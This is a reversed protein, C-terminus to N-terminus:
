KLLEDAPAAARALALSMFLHVEICFVGETSMVQSATILGRYRVSYDALPIHSAHNHLGDCLQVMVM